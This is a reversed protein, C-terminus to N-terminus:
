ETKGTLKKRENEIMINLAIDLSRVEESTLGVTEIGDPTYQNKCVLVNGFLAQGHTAYGYLISAPPNAIPENVLLAEDDAVICIDKLFNFSEDNLTEAFEYLGYANVIDICSCGILNYYYDLRDSEPFEVARSVCIREGNNEEVKLFVSYTKSM